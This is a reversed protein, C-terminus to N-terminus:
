NPRMWIGRDTAVLIGMLHAVVGGQANATVRQAAADQHVDDSDVPEIGGESIRRLDVQVEARTGDACAAAVDSAIRNLINEKAIAQAVKALHRRQTLGISSGPVIADVPVHTITPARM